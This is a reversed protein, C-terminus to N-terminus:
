QKYYSRQISSLVFLEISWSTSVESAYTTTRNIDIDSTFILAKNLSMLMLELDIRFCLM